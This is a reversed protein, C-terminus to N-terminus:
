SRQRRVTLVTGLVAILCASTPEPVAAFTITLLPRDAVAANNHSVFRKSTTDKSENGQLLWGFNGSPDDVWAQVDAILQPSQWTYAGVGGVVSSASAAPVFDGGPNDWLTTNFNTHLWTADGPAAATGGGEGMGAESTGEGWAKLVPHLSIVEDGALTMSMNLRLSVNTVTSGAPVSGALDFAVLGRHTVDVGTKGAFFFDGGGNSLSGDETEYLTNDQSAVLSVEAAVNTQVPLLLGGVLFLGFRVTSVRKPIMM